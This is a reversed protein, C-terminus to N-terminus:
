ITEIKTRGLLSGRALPEEIRLKAREAASRTLRDDMPREDDKSHPDGRGDEASEELDGHRPIQSPGVEPAMGRASEAAPTPVM